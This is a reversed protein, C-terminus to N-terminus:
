ADLEGKRRLAALLETADAANYTHTTLNRKDRYVWWAKVDGVLGQEAGVRLLKLM